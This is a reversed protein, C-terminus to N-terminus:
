SQLQEFLQEWKSWVREPSYEQMALKANIGLERRLKENCMLQELGVAYDKINDACLVGSVNNVILENVSPANAFGVVPLGLSMAEGLVMAFGEYASPIALIGAQRMKEQVNDTVGRFHVQEELKYKRVLALLGDKYARDYDPGYFEVQWQTYKPAILAFAKLLIHQRKQKEDLRGICIITNKEKNLKVLETAALKPEVAIANPIYVVKTSLYRKAEKVFSPMLVQYADMKNAQELQKKTMPKILADISNHVMAIRPKLDLKNAVMISNYEFCVACYIESNKIKKQVEYALMETRYIDVPNDIELQFPKLVERLIKREVPVTIKGLGLNIFVVEERLKYAPQKEARDNCIAIVKYGRQSFANAMNVFVKETGAVNDIHGVGFFLLLLTKM